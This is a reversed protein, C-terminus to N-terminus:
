AGACSALKDAAIHIQCNKPCVRACAGCGICRGAEDVVMVMRNLEGDFDDDEDDCIGLIEGAENAGYLHMVDRSCVKFCRGCGICTKGDIATLYEPVWTSGDRTVFTGTM